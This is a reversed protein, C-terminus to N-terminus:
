GAIDPAWFELMRGSELTLSEDHPILLKRRGSYGQRQSHLGGREEKLSNRSIILLPWDIRRLAAETMSFTCIDFPFLAVRMPCVM